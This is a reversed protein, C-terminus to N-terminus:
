RKINKTIDGVHTLYYNTLYEYIKKLDPNFGDIANSVKNISSIITAHNKMLNKAIDIKSYGHMWALYQFSQSWVLFERKRVRSKMSLYKSLTPDYMCMAQFAEDRLIDLAIKNGTKQDLITGGLIVNVDLNYKDKVSKVFDQTDVTLGDKILTM